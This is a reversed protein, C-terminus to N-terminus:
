AGARVHGRRLASGQHRRHDFLNTSEFRVSDCGRSLETELLLHSLLCLRLKSASFVVELGPLTNLRSKPLPGLTQAIPRGLISMWGFATSRVTALEIYARRVTWM